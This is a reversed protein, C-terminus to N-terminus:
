QAARRAALANYVGALWFAAFCLVASDTSRMMVMALATIAYAAVTFGTAVSPNRFRVRMDIKKKNQKQQRKIIENHVIRANNIGDTPFYSVVCFPAAPFPPWPM